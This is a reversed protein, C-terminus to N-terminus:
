ARPGPQPMTARYFAKSTVVKFGLQEYFEVATRNDHETTWEIRSCGKNLAVRRINDMLLRGIGRRRFAEAVYLEKLYLSHTIGAAPWLFSYTALGVVSTGSRALLVHAAPAEGFLLGSIQELRQELPNLETSGYFRDLEEVLMAIDPIDRAQGPAVVVV